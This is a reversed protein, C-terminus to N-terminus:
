PQTGEDEDELDGWDLDLAPIQPLEIRIAETGEWLEDYSPDVTPPGIEEADEAEGVVITGFPADVADGDSGDLQDESGDDSAAAPMAFGNGADAEPSMALMPEIEPLSVKVDMARELDDAVGLLREQMSALQGVLADRRTALGAITRDAEERAVRVATEARERAEEAHAQADTRIRDAEARAHSTLREADAQAETRIKVAAGDAERILNAVRAALQEYPDIRPEAAARVATTAESRAENVMSRMVEMQDALQGLYARVQEPDYGRRITVFERRRIQEATILVPLDLNTASM